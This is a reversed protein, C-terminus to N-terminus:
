FLFTETQKFASQRSKFQQIKFNKHLSGDMLGYDRQHKSRIPMM